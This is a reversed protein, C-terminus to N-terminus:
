GVTSDTIEPPVAEIVFISDNSDASLRATNMLIPQIGRVSLSTLELTTAACSPCLAIRVLTIAAAIPRITSQM